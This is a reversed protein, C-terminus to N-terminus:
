AEETINGAALWLVRQLNQEHDALEEPTWAGYEKLEARVAAPDLAALQRAVAPVQSLARVDSDCPGPHSASAAQARTLRLEFRNFTAYPM